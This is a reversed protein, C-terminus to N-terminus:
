ISFWREGVGRKKEPEFEGGNERVEEVLLMLPSVITTVALTDCATVAMGGEEPHASKISM